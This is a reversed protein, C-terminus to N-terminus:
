VYCNPCIQPKPFAENSWFLEGCSECELHYKTETEKPDFDDLDEAFFNKGVVKQEKAPYIPCSICANTIDNIIIDKMRCERNIDINGGFTCKPKEPFKITIVDNCETIEALRSKLESLESIKNGLIFKVYGSHVNFNLEWKMKEILEDQKDIIQKLLTEKM